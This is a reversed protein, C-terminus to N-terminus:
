RNQAYKRAAKGFASFIAMSVANSTAMWEPHWQIALTFGPANDVRFAEILGDNARAEAVLGSGLQNIGQGHLSNVIATASGTLTSLVGGPEFNVPHAPGFRQSVSQDHDDRHDDFGPQEHVRQYLTGGFAVNMEQLGRCVGLLPMGRKIVQPIIGLTTADRQPDQDTGNLSVEGGYHHAEINSPSGTLFVGDLRDLVVEDLMADGLAPLMVPIADAAESIATLYQELVGHIHRDM